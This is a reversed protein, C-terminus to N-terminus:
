PRQPRGGFTNKEWLDGLSYDEMWEEINSDNLRRFNSQGAIKDVVVIDQPEFQNLLTVSQTSILLQTRTSTSKFLEALVNIAYPHLGLEPEDILVLSPLVPQLLLTTLLIFRLTGDSFSHATFPFDSNVETWEIRIQPTPGQTERLLFDDFFPAVMRITDRINSYYQPYDKQLKYLFAALNSGDGRLFLNDNVFCPGKAPALDSTDHFHYVKWGKLADAVYYAISGPGRQQLESLVKTETHGGGLRSVQPNPYRVGKFILNEHSFILTNSDTPALGIDYKNNGFDLTASIESTVKRGYHLMLNAGGKQGVYFQLRNEILENLFKFFSILNSKGCGNAGVLINIRSLNLDLSKISKYGNLKINTLSTRM